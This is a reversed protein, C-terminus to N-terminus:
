VRTLNRRRQSAPAPNITVNIVDDVVPGGVRLKSVDKTRGTIPNTVSTFGEYYSIQKLRTLVTTGSTLGGIAVQMNNFGNLFDAASATQWKTSTALDAAAGFPWYIRSKGGRYRRAIPLGILAACGGPLFDSGRTGSIATPDTGVGGSPSSLDLVEIAEIGNGIAFLGQLNTVALGHIDTALAVCDANTPPGGTYGFFFRSDATLDAGVGM